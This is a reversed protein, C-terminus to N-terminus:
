KPKLARTCSCNINTQSCTASKNATALWWQCVSGARRVACTAHGLPCRQGTPATSVAATGTKGRPPPPSAKKKPALVASGQLTTKADCGCPTLSGVCVPPKLWYQCLGAAPSTGAKFFFNTTSNISKAAKAVDDCFTHGLKCTNAAGVPVNVKTAPPPNAGPVSGGVGNLPGSSPFFLRCDPDQRGILGDCDGDLGGLCTANNETGNPNRRCVDVRAAGNGAARVRFVLGTPAHTLNEGVAASGLFYSFEPSHNGLGSFTYLSIRNTFTNALTLDPGEALRYGLFLPPQGQVWTAEIRLGSLRTRGQAALTVSRTQAPALLADNILQPELWGLQWAHPTNMCRDSCCYGMACSTDGYEDVSGDEFVMSSHQLFQNHGMEHFLSQVSQEAGRSAGMFLDAQIWSACPFQFDCGIYGIGVFTCATGPPVLVAKYLYANPDIGQDVLQDMAAESWGIFDAYDCLQSSFPTGYSSINNCPLKIVPSVYSNARNLLAQGYSCTRWMGELTPRGTSRNDDYVLAEVDQQTYWPAGYTGGDKTPCGELSLTLVLTSVAPAELSLSTTPLAGNSNPAQLLGRPATKRGAPRRARPRPLRGNGGSGTAGTSVGPDVVTSTREKYNPEEVVTFEDVKVMQTAVKGGNTTTFGLMKVKLTVAQGTRLGDLGQGSLKYITHVGNRNLLTENKLYFDKTYAGTMNKPYDKAFVYVRGSLSTSALQALTVSSSALLLLVAVATASSPRRSM